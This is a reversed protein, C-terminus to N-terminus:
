RKIGVHAVAIGNTMRQYSVKRFGISELIAALEDPLPFMRITESLCAYSQASGVILGGLFPMVNFSYFDYLGRFLVNTPKSFDLCLIKGGPRLVRHMERFGRKLHTVNRIGFGVMAGDFSNDPFAICEADGQVCTIPAMSRTTDIKSRGANMMARNFDYITVLGSPGARNAALLALDGTGGCVDIIQDGPRIGMMRVSARKWVHQLGLSLISNMLDYKPAVKNFHHAVTNVKESWKVKKNGFRAVGTRNIHEDLQEKRKDADFWKIKERGIKERSTNRSAM